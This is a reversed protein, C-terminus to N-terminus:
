IITKAAEVKVIVYLKKRSCVTRQWLFYKNSILLRMLKEVESTFISIVSVKITNSSKETNEAYEVLEIEEVSKSQLLKMSMWQKKLLTVLRLLQEAQLEGRGGGWDEPVPGGGPARFAGALQKLPARRLYQPPTVNMTRVHKGWKDCTLIARPGHWTLAECVCTISVTCKEIDSASNELNM